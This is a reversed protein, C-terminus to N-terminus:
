PAEGPESATLGTLLQQSCYAAATLGTLAGDQRSPTSSSGEDAGQALGLGEGGMGGAANFAASSGSVRGQQQQQQQTQTVGQQQQQQQRLTKLEETLLATKRLAALLETDKADLMTDLTSKVSRHEEQLVLLHLKIIALYICWLSKAPPVSLHLVLLSM